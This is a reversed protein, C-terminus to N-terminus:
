IASCHGCAQPSYTQLLSLAATFTMGTHKILEFVPIDCGGLGLWVWCYGKRRPDSVAVVFVPIDCGGLGSWVWWYGKWWPLLLPIPFADRSRM